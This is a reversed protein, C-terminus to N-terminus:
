GGRHPKGAGTDLYTKLSDVFFLNWGAECVEYCHLNPTLGDHEFHIAAGNKKAITEIQWIVRSGLWETTPAGPKDLIKHYAEVCELEVRAGTELKVAEFTWYSVAPPFAFKIRDGAKRFRGECATWWASHGQTLARYAEDLSANVRITRAYNEARIRERTENQDPIM